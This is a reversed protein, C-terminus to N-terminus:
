IEFVCAYVSLHIRVSVDPADFGLFLGTYYCKINIRVLLFMEYELTYLYREHEYFTAHMTQCTFTFYQLIFKDTRDM